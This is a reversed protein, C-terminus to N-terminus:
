KDGKRVARIEEYFEKREQHSMSKWLKVKAQREAGTKDGWLYNFWGQEEATVPADDTAAQKDNDPPAPAENTMVRGTLASLALQRTGVRVVVQDAKSDFSISAPGDGEQPGAKNKWLLLGTTAEVCYVAGGAAVYLPPGVRRSAQSDISAFCLVPNKLVWSKGGGAGGLVWSAGDRTDDRSAKVLGTVTGDQRAVVVVRGDPSTLRNGGGANTKMASEVYDLGELLGTDFRRERFKGLMIEVLRNRDAMPFLRRATDDGVEIQIRGPQKCILVYVGRVRLELARSTAWENFLRGRNEPTLEQQMAPPVAKFTEVRVQKGFRRGIRGILAEAKELTGASFFEGGDRIAAAETPAPMRRDPVSQKAPARPADPNTPEAEQASALTTVLILATVAVVRASLPM